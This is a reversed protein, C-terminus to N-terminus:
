VVVLQGGFGELEIGLVPLVAVRDGVQGGVMGLDADPGVVIGVSRVLPIMAVPDVVV